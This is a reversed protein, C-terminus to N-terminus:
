ERKAGIEFVHYNSTNSYTFNKKDTGFQNYEM